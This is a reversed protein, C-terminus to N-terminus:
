SCSKVKMPLKMNYLPLLTHMVLLLFQYNDLQKTKANVPLLKIDKFSKDINELKLTDLLSSRGTASLVYETQISEEKENIKYNLIVGDSTSKVEHPM